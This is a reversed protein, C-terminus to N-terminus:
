AIHGIVVDVIQRCAQVLCSSFINTLQLHAHAGHATSTHSRIRFPRGNIVDNTTGNCSPNSESSVDVDARAPVICVMRRFGGVEVCTGVYRMIHGNGCRHVEGLVHRFYPM